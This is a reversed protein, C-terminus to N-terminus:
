WWRPQAGAHIIITVVHQHVHGNWPV